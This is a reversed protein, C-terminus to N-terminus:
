GIVLYIVGALLTVDAAVSWILYAKILWNM